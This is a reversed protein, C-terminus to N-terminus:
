RFGLGSLSIGVDADNAVVRLSTAVDVTGMRAESTVLDVRHISSEGTLHRHRIGHPASDLVKAM